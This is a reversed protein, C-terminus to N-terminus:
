SQHISTKRGQDNHRLAEKLEEGKATLMFCYTQLFSDKPGFDHELYGRNVWMWLPRNMACMPFGYHPAIGKNMVLTIARQQPFTVPFMVLREIEARSPSIREM